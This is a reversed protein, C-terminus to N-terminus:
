GSAVDLAPYNTYGSAGGRYFADTHPTNLAAGTPM